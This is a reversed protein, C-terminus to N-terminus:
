EEEPHPSHAEADPDFLKSEPNMFHNETIDIMKGAVGKVKVSKKKKPLEAKNIGEQAFELIDDCLFGMDDFIDEPVIEPKSIKDLCDWSKLSAILGSLQHKIDRTMLKLEVLETVRMPRPPIVGPKEENEIITDQLSM